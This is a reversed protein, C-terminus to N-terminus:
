KVKILYYKEIENLNIDLDFSESLYKLRKLNLVGDKIIKYTKFAKLFDMNAENFISSIPNGHIQFKRKISDPIFDIDVLRNEHCIFDRGISKPCGKLTTLQNNSCIFKFGVNEPGGELSTLQNNNCTFTGFVVKPSGELSTLLNRSCNFWGTVTGFKLPLETLKCYDLYVSGDVDVTGDDKITYNSIGHIECFSVIEDKSLLM